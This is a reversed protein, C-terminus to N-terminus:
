APVREPERRKPAPQVPAKPEERAPEKLPKIRREPQVKRERKALRIM